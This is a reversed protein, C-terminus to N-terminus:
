PLAECPNQMTGLEKAIGVPCRDVQPMPLCHDFWLSSRTVCRTLAEHAASDCLLRDQDSVGRFSGNDPTFSNSSLSILNFASPFFLSGSALIDGDPDLSLNSRVGFGLSL